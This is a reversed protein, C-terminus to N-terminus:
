VIQEERGGEGRESSRGMEAPLEPEKPVEETSPSRPKLSYAFTGAAILLFGVAQLGGFSSSWRSAWACTPCGVYFTLLDVLWLAAITAPGSIIMTWTGSMTAIVMNAFVSLAAISVSNSLLLWSIAPNNQLQLSINRFDSGWWDVTGHRM